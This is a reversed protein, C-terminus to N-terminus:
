LMTGINRKSCPYQSDVIREGRERHLTRRLRFGPLRNGTAGQADVRRRARIGVRPLDGIRWLRADCESGGFFSQRM